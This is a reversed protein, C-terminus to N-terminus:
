IEKVAKNKNFNFDFMIEQTLRAEDGWSFSAQKITITHKRLGSNIYNIIGRESTPTHNNYLNFM